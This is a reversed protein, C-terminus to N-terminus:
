SLRASRRLESQLPISEETSTQQYHHGPPVSLSLTSLQAIRYVSKRLTDYRELQGGQYLVDLRDIIRIGLAAKGGSVPLGEDMLIKRLEENELKRILSIMSQLQSTWSPRSDMISTFNKRSVTQADDEMDACKRKQPISPESTSRLQGHYGGVPEAEEGQQPDGAAVSDSTSVPTNPITDSPDDCELSTGGGTRAHYSGLPIERNDWSQQVGSVANAASADILNVTHMRDPNTTDDTPAEILNSIKMRDTPDAKALKSIHTIEATSNRTIPASGVLCSSQLREPTQGGTLDIISHTEVPNPHDVIPRVEWRLRSFPVHLEASKRNVHEVVPMLVQAAEIINSIVAHDSIHFGIRDSERDVFDREALAILGHGPNRSLLNALEIIVGITTLSFPGYRRQAMAHFRAFPTANDSNQNPM